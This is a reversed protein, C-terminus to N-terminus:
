EPRLLYLIFKGKILNITENNDDTKVSKLVQKRINKNSKKNKLGHFVNLHKNLANLSNYVCTCMSCKHIRTAEKTVAHCRKM